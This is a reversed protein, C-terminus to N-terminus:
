VIDTKLDDIHVCLIALTKIFHVVEVAGLFTIFLHRVGVVQPLSYLFLRCNLEIVISETAKWAVSDM